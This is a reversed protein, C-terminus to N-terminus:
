WLSCQAHSALVGKWFVALQIISLGPSGGCMSYSLDQLHCWTPADEGRGRGYISSVMKLFAFSTLRSPTDTASPFDRLLFSTDGVSACFCNQGKGYTRDCSLPGWNHSERQTATERGCSWLGCLGWEWLNRSDRCGGEGSIVEPFKKCYPGILSPTVERLVQLNWGSPQPGGNHCGRGDGDDGLVLQELGQCVELLRKEKETNPLRSFHDWFTVNM